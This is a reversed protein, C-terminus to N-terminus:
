GAPRPESIGVPRAPGAPGAPGAPRAPGAPGPPGSAGLLGLADALSRDQRGSTDVPRAEPWPREVAALARYVEVGADSHSAAPDRRALRREVLAAPARCVLEDLDAYTAAALRRAEDRRAPEAFTADVVVSVGRGLLDGARAFLDAYTAAVRDPRYLGEGPPAAAATGPELGEREKRVDDSRLHAAGLAAAIGSAVTSKGTGPLGGVVVLRVRGRRLHDLCLDLLQRAEGESAEAGQRARLGAVLCRVQARYARFHHALSPPWDDSAERRYSDLLLRGADPSGLRELDMALSCMDDLGDVIRLRDDFELCDIIRPGDDLCYIDDALLDGHGDCLRGASRRDEWLPRRGALYRRALAIAEEASGTDLTADTLGSVVRHNAEWHASVAEYGGAEDCYAPRDAGRHFRAMVAAVRDIDAAVPEGRGVKGALQRDHPLRRMVVMRDCVAGDPGTVDATGLYVDPALRSNLEVERACVALRTELSTFDLFGMDVPKKLKYARDEYLIVVGTHTELAEVFRGEGGPATGDVM